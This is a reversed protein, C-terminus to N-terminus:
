PIITRNTSVSFDIETVSWSAWKDVIETYSPALTGDKLRPRTKMYNWILDVQQDHNAGKAMLGKIAQDACPVCFDVQNNWVQSVGILMHFVEYALRTNRIPNRFAQDTTHDFPTSRTGDENKKWPHGSLASGPIGLAVGFPLFGPIGSHPGDLGLARDGADQFRHMAAGMEGTDGTALASFFAARGGDAFHNRYTAGSVTNELTMPTTLPYHDVGATTLALGAAQEITLGAALGLYYTLAGHFTEEFAGTSDGSNVPNNGAYAYANWGSRAPDITLFRAYDNRYYRARMYDQEPTDREHGTFKLVTQDAAAVLEEGFPTYAHSGILAGNGDTVARPTGTHDLHFRLKGFPAGLSPDGESGLVRGGAHFFDRQWVWTEANTTSYETKFERLVEGAGGRLRWTYVGNGAVASAFGNEDKTDSEVTEDIRVPDEVVPSEIGPTEEEAAMRYVLTSAAVLGAAAIVGAARLRARGSVIM